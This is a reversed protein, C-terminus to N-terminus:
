LSKLCSYFKLFKINNTNYNFIYYFLHISKEGKLDRELEVRLLKENQAGFKMGLYKFM